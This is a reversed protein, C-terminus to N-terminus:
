KYHIAIMLETGLHTLPTFHYYFGVVYQYSKIFSNLLLISNMVTPIHLHDTLNM